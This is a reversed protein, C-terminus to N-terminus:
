LKPWTSGRSASLWRTAQHLLLRCTGTTCLRSGLVPESIVTRYCYHRSNLLKTYSLDREWEGCRVSLDSSHHAENLVVGICSTTFGCQCLITAHLEGAYSQPLSLEVGMLPRGRFSAAYIPQGGEDTGVERMSAGFYADTECEVRPGNELEIKCPLLHLVPEDADGNSRLTIIPASSMAAGTGLGTNKGRAHLVPACAGKEEKQM